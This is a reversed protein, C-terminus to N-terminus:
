NCNQNFRWDAMLRAHVTISIRHKLRWIKAYKRIWIRAAIEEDINSNLLKCLYLRYKRIEIIQLLNDM